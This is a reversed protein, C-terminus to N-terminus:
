ATVLDTSDPDPEHSTLAVFADALNGRSIAIDRIAGAAALAMVTADADTTHLIAIHGRVDVGSVGPLRALHAVPGDVRISVTTLPVAQKVEASTGDAVVRGRDVVIIRDAHDDAEQLYHTSFLITKGRDAFRRMSEWFERRATVDLAATPEDLIILDPDGAIAMAFRVRQKQGGSLRDVRRDAIETLHAAALVDSIPLRRPYSRGVFRVLEGVTVRNATGGEQQMAGVLGRRVAAQPDHGLVAITGADPQILGLLMSITTSKGAGNPGLLAVTSGSAFELTIGGVATVTGFSKRVGHLRVAPTTTNM